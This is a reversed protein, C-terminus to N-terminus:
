NTGKYKRSARTGDDSTHINCFRHSSLMIVKYTALM